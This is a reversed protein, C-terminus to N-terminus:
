ALFEQRIDILANWRDEHPIKRSTNDVRLTRERKERHQILDIVELPDDDHERGNVKLQTVNNMDNSGLISNATRWVNKLSLTHRREHAAKIEINMYGADYDKGFSKIAGIGAEHDADTVPGIAVRMTLSRITQHRRAKAGAEDDLRPILLYKTGRNAFNRFYRAIAGPGMGSLTSEVFALNAEPDHLMATEHAFSENPALDIPVAQTEPASRSPGTFEFTVFNLLYCDERRDHDELRRGKENVNLYREELSQACAIELATGFPTQSVHDWLGLQNPREWLLSVDFISVKFSKDPM